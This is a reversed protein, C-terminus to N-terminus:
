WFVALTLNAGSASGLGFGNTTPNDTSTTTGGVTVEHTGSTSTYALQYEAALSINNWAFWEVGAIGAVGFTTNSDHIKNNTVFGPNENTASGTGLSVQAGIYALVPGSSNINHIFGPTISFGTGTVKQDSGGGPAGTYKTTTTSTAFGLGIRLSNGDSIYYKGGVGGMFNGAGLNSLGNLTFLWAKDGSKSKPNSDDGASALQVLLMVAFLVFLFKKM